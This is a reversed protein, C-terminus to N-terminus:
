VFATTGNIIGNIHCSASAAALLKVHGFIDHQMEKQDGQDLLHFPEVSSVTPIMHYVLM